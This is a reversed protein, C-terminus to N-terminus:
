FLCRTNILLSRNLWGRDQPRQGKLIALTGGARRSPCPPSQPHPVASTPFITKPPLGLSGPANATVIYDGESLGTFSYQGSSDTAMSKCAGGTTCAEVRAGAIENGSVVSNKYVTGRLTQLQGPTCGGGITSYRQRRNEQDQQIDHDFNAAGALFGLSWAALGNRSSAEAHTIFGASLVALSFVALAIAALSTKRLSSLNNKM